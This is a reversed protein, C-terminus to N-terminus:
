KNVEKDSVRWVNDEYKIKPYVLKKGCWPCNNWPHMQPQWSGLQKSGLRILYFLDESNVKWFECTCKM